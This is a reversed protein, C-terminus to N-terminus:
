SPSLRPLSESPPEGHWLQSRFIPSPNLQYCPMLARRNAFCHPQIQRNDLDMGLEWLRKSSRMIRLERAKFGPRGSVFKPEFSFLPWTEEAQLRGTMILQASPADRGPSQQHLQWGPHIIPEECKWFQLTCGWQTHQTRSSRTGSGKLYVFSGSARLYVSLPWPQWRWCRPRFKRQAPNRQPQSECAQERLCTRSRLSGQQM